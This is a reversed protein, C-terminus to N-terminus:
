SYRFIIFDDLNLFLLFYISNFIPFILKPYKDSNDAQGFNSNDSIKTKLTHYWWKCRIVFKYFHTFINIPNNPVRAPVINNLELYKKSPFIDFIYMKQFITCILGIIDRVWQMFWGGWWNIPINDAMKTLALLTIAKPRGNHQFEM